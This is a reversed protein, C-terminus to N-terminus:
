TEKPPTVATDPTLEGKLAADVPDVPEVSQGPEEEEEPDEIRKVRIGESADFDEGVSLQALLPTLNGRGKKRAGALKEVEKAAEGPGTVTTVKEGDRTIEFVKAM